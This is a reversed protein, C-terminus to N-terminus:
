QTVLLKFSIALTTKEKVYSALDVLKYNVTYSGTPLKGILITDNTLFCPMKMMSNFQKEIDITYGTIKVGALANYKCDDYIVLKVDSSSLLNDPLIKMKYNGLDALQVDTIPEQNNVKQCAFIFLSFSVFLLNFYKM